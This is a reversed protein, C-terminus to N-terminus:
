CGPHGKTVGDVTLVLHHFIILLLLLLLLVILYSCLLLLLLILLLLLQFFREYPALRLWTDAIGTRHQNGVQGKGAWRGGVALWHLIPWINVFWCIFWSVLTGFVCCIAIGGPLPLVILAPTEFQGKPEPENQVMNISQQSLQQRYNQRYVANM